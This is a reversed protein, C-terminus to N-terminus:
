DYAAYQLVSYTIDNNSTPGLIIEVLLNVDDPHQDEVETAASPVERETTTPTATTPSTTPRTTTAPPTTTREPFVPYILPIESEPREYEAAVHWYLQINVSIISGNM